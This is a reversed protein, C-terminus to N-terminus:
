MNTSSYLCYASRSLVVDFPSTVCGREWARPGASSRAQSRPQVHRAETPGSRSKGDILLDGSTSFVVWGNSHDSVM